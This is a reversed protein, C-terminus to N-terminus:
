KTLIGVHKGIHEIIIPKQGVTECFEKFAINDNIDDIVMLSNKSLANWIIPTAWIRGTYSKDSDYHCFDLKNDFKKLALPIGTIDPLRQLDWKSKLNEPVVIGVFDENNENVYPMDNSILRAGEINQLALLIALSSWGYAVGTEFCRAPKLHKVLHYILSVAGEGGMKVPSKESQEGAKKMIEPFLDLLPKVNSEGILLQLAEEQSICNKKCWQTAEDRTNEKEKFKKRKLIQFVQPYYKPRAAFWAITKLKTM